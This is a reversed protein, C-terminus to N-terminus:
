GAFEVPTIAVVPAAKTPEGMAAHFLECLSGAPFEGQFDGAVWSEFAELIALRDDDNARDCVLGFLLGIGSMGDLDDYPGAYRQDILVRANRVREVITPTM